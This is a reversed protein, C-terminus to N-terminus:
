GEALQGKEPAQPVPKKLGEVYGEDAKIEGLIEDRHDYYYALAAHM